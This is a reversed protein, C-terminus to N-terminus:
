IGGKAAVSFVLKDMDRLSETDTAPRDNLTATYGAAGMKGRADAVTNVDDLVKKEGGVIQAIVNKAM